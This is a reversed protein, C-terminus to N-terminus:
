PESKVPTTPTHHPEGGGNLCHRDPEVSDDSEGTSDIAEHLCDPTVDGDIVRGQITALMSEIQQKIADAGGVIAVEQRDVFMGATKGLAILSAVRASDGGETSEVVLRDLVYDRRQAASMLSGRIAAETAHQIAVKVAPSKYELEHGSKSANSVPPMHKEWAQKPTDGSARSMVYSRHRTQVRKLSDGLTRAEQEVVRRQIKQAAASRALGASVPKSPTKMRDEVTM